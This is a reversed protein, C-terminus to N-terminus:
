FAGLLVLAPLFLLLVVNIFLLLALFRWITSSRSLRYSHRLHKYIHLPATISFLVIVWGVSIGGANMLSLAIFLLSMFSLSYTIFVTHDYALVRRKWVFLLWVFPLSLPILLWSFKYGNAQLKYIMLSPNETWKDVLTAVLPIDGLDRGENTGIQEDGKVQEGGEVGVLGKLARLERLNTEAQAFAAEAAAREPSGEPFSEITQARQEYEAISTREAEALSAQAEDGFSLDNPPGIGVMQFVAFMAFVSFLFMAMPSVFKAREGQIYRRTLEGPKFTLLPLTAWLKGDLHLVGHILDHGIAALSRHIHWKQGCHACYAGSVASGCNSCIDAGGNAGSAEGMHPEVARAAAAGEIAAGLGEAIDSM